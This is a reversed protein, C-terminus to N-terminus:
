FIVNKCIWKVACLIRRNGPTVIGTEDTSGGDVGARRVDSAGDSQGCRAGEREARWVRGETARQGAGGHNAGQIEGARGLGTGTEGQGDSHGQSPEETRWASESGRHVRTWLAARRKSITRKM